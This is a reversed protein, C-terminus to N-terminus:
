ERTAGRAPAAARASSSPWRPSRDGDRDPGALRRAVGEAFREHVDPALVAIDNDHVAIDSVRGAGLGEPHFERVPKEIYTNGLAVEYADRATKGGGALMGKGGAEGAKQEAIGVVLYAHADGKRRQVTVRLM